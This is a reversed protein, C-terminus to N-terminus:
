GPSPPPRPGRGARLDSSLVAMRIEDHWAGDWRLADRLRGEERFGCTEYVHRARPNFAYVGLAVRHLGVEDLAYALVLRTAETGYGHGPASLWIRFGVSANPADLDNLVAEGLFAGDAERLVAWDARDHQLHRTRLWHEVAAPELEAQSGTLRRVEPDRLGALYDELVDVTLPVLRVRTGVLPPQDRFLDRSIM